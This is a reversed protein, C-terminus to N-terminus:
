FILLSQLLLCIKKHERVDASKTKDTRPSPYGQKGFEDLDNHDKLLGCSELLGCLGGLIQHVLSGLVARGESGASGLWCAFVAGCKARLVGISRYCQLKVHENTTVLMWRIRPISLM